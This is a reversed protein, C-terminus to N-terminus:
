KKSTRAFYERAIDESFIGFLRSIFKNRASLNEDKLKRSSADIGLLDFFDM